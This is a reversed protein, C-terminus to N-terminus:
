KSGSPNRASARFAVMRELWATWEEMSLDRKSFNCTACCSVCNSYVYGITNDVRDIGNVLIQHKGRKLQVLRSPVSGCYNCNNLVLAEAQEETLAWELNRKTASQKYNHVALHLGPHGPQKTWRAVAKEKGLCGCSVCRKRKLEGSPKLAEKGCDCLCRYLRHKTAGKGYFGWSWDIVTLRGFRSGAEIPPTKNGAM